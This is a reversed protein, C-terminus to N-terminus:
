RSGTPAEDLPMLGIPIETGDELKAVWVFDHFEKDEFQFCLEVIRNYPVPLSRRLLFTNKPLLLVIKNTISHGTGNHFQQERVRTILVGEDHTIRIIKGVLSHPIDAVKHMRVYGLNMNRALESLADNDM